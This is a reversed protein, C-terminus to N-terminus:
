KLAASAARLGLRGKREADQCGEVERQGRERGRVWGAPNFGGEAVCCM